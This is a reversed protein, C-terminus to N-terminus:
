YEGQLEELQMRWMRSSLPSGHLFLIAPNNPNGAETYHIM